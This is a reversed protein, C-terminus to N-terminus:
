NLPEAKRLSIVLKVIPRTGGGTIVRLLFLQQYRLESADQLRKSEPNFIRFSYHIRPGFLVCYIMEFLSFILRVLSTRPTPSRSLLSFKWPMSHQSANIIYTATTMHFSAFRFRNHVYLFFSFCNEIRKWGSMFERESRKAKTMKLSYAQTCSLKDRTFAIRIDCRM